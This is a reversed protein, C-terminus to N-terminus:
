YQYERVGGPSSFGPARTGPVEKRNGPNLTAARWYRIAQNCEHRHELRRIHKVPQVVLLALRHHMWAPRQEHQRPGTGALGARQHGPRGPQTLLAHLRGPDQQQGEGPAGRVVHQGAGGPPCPRGAPPDGAAGEVRDRVPDDAPVGLRERQRRLERDDVRRVHRVQEIGAPGIVAQGAGAPPRRPGPHARVDVGPAHVRLLGDGLHHTGIEGPAGLVGGLEALQEAAIDRVLAAVAQDVEVVQQQQPPGRKGIRGGPRDQAAHEIRDEDVLVLVDVRDLGVDHPQQRGFAAAQGADAVVGLGDVAEAAGVRLVQPLQRGGEGAQGHHPKAAVVPGPLRHEPQGVLHARLGGPQFEREGRGALGPGRRHQHAAVVLRRLRPLDAGLDQRGALGAQVQAVLGHQDARRVVAVHQLYLQRSAADREHLVAPQAEGLRGM